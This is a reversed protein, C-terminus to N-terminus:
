WKNCTLKDMIYNGLDDNPTLFSVFDCDFRFVAFLVVELHVTTYFFSYSEIAEHLDVHVSSKELLL